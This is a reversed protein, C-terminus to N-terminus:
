IMHTVSYYMLLFASITVLNGQKINSRCNKRVFLISWFCFFWFLFLYFIFFFSFSFYFSISVRLSARTESVFRCSKLVVYTRKRDFIYLVFKKRMPHSLCTSNMPHLCVFFARKYLGGTPLVRDAARVWHYVKIIIVTVVWHEIYIYNM